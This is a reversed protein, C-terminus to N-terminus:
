KLIHSKLVQKTYGTQLIEIISKDLRAVNLRDTIRGRKNAGVALHDLRSWGM